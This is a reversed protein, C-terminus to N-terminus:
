GETTNKRSYSDSLIAQPALICPWKLRVKAQKKLNAYSNCLRAKEISKLELVSFLCLVIASCACIIPPPISFTVSTLHGYDHTLIM